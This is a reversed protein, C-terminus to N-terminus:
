ANFFAEYKAFKENALIWYKSSTSKGSKYEAILVDLFLYDCGGDHMQKVSTYKSECAVGADYAIKSKDNCGSLMLSMFSLLFLKSFLPM